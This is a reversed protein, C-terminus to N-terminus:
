DSAQKGSFWAWINGPGYILILAVGIAAAELALRHPLLQLTQNGSVMDEITGFNPISYPAIAERAIWSLSIALLVFGMITIGLQVVHKQRTITFESDGRKQLEGLYPAIYYLIVSLLLQAFQPLYIANPFEPNPAILNSGFPSLLYGLITWIATCAFSIALMRLGSEIIDKKKVTWIVEDTSSAKRRSVLAIVLSIIIPVIYSFFTNLNLLSAPYRSLSIAGEAKKLYQFVTFDITETIYLVVILVSTVYIIAIGIDNAKSCSKILLLGIM